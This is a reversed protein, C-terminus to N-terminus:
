GLAATADRHFNELYRRLRLGEVGRCAMPGEEARM